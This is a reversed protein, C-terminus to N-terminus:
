SPIISPTRHVCWKPLEIPKPVYSMWAAMIESVIHSTAGRFEVVAHKPTYRKAELLVNMNRETLIQLGRPLNFCLKQLNNFSQVFPDCVSAWLRNQRNINSQEEVGLRFESMSTDVVVSKVYDCYKDLGLDTYLFSIPHDNTFHFTNDGYLVAFCECAVTKSTRCIQPSMGLRTVYVEPNRYIDDNIESASKLVVPEHYVLLIRYIKNRIEAPLDLFRFVEPDTPQNM